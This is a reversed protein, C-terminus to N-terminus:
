PHEGESQREEGEPEPRRIDERIEELEHQYKEKFKEFESAATSKFLGRKTKLELSEDLTAMTTQFLKDAAKDLPESGAQLARYRDHFEQRQARLYALKAERSEDVNGTIREWIGKVELRAIQAKLYNDLQCLKCQAYNSEKDPVRGAKIADDRQGWEPTGKEPINPNTVVNIHAGRIRMESFLKTDVSQLFQRLSEESNKIKIIGSNADMFLLHEKDLRGDEKVAMTFMMAHGFRHNTGFRVPRELGVTLKICPSELCSTADPDANMKDHISKALSALQFDDMKDSEGRIAIPTTAPSFPRDTGLNFRAGVSMDGDYQGARLREIFEKDTQTIKDKWTNYRGETVARAFDDSMFSCVGPDSMPLFGLVGSQHFKSIIQVDPQRECAKYFSSQDVSGFFFASKRGQSSIIFAQEFARERQLAGETEEDDLRGWGELLDDADDSAATKEADPPMDDPVWQDSIEPM